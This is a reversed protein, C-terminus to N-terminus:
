ISSIISKLNKIGEGSNTSTYLIKHESDENLKYIQQKLINKNIEREKTGLKDSKTCVVAFKIKQSCLFKIMQLDNESALRRSDILQLVLDPTRTEFYEEVLKSWRKKEDPSALAFGYGPLDILRVGCANYVNMTRTKGAQKSTKALKKGFIANLLSSKGVNSRGSIVIEPLTQTPMDNIFGVCKEFVVSSFKLLDKM